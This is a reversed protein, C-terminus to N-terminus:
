KKFIKSVANTISIRGLTSTITSEQDFKFTKLVTWISISTTVTFTGITILNRIKERKDEAEIQSKKLDTEIKIQELKILENRLKDKEELLVKYREDDAGIITLRDDIDKYDKWLADNTKSM